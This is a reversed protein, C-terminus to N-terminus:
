PKAAAVTQPFHILPPTTPEPLLIRPPLLRSERRASLLDDVQKLVMAPTVQSMCGNHTCPAFSRGDYCPRCAFGEGGWLGVVNGRRPLFVHPNTPGFVAVIAARTIGAMHLPGTDHSIFVAATDFLAISEIISFRGILDTVPLAAFHAAAWRDDPGGALVVECGREVLAAALAVYHEIPWRRLIDDRMMNRAGAPALVIRPRAPDAPQAFAPLEVTASPFPVPSVQTPNEGDPHGDITSTLIRLYEGAHSRGPILRTARDTHSLNLKRGARLPLTLLRYRSDYYLTACLDYRTASFRRWFSLVAGVRQAIGGRLLGAEDVPLVNIWPYLRLLPAIAAGCVWDVQYGARHMAHAAPLAMIVDGIAGFKILLLRRSPPKSSTSNPVTTSMVM